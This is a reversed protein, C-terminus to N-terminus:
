PHVDFNRVKVKAFCDAGLDSLMELPGEEERVMISSLKGKLEAYQGMEHEIKAIRTPDPRISQILFSTSSAIPRNIPRQLKSQANYSDALCFSFWDVCTGEQASLPSLHSILSSLVTTFLTQTHLPPTQIPPAYLQVGCRKLNGEGLFVVRWHRRAWVSSLYTGLRLCSTVHQNQRVSQRREQPSQCM